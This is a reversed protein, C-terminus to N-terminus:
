RSDTGGPYYDSGQLKSPLPLQFRSSRFGMSWAMSLITLSDAPRLPLSRM